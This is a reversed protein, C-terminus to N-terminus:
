EPSSPTLDLDLGTEYRIGAEIAEEAFNDDQLGFYANVPECGAALFGVIGFLFKLM